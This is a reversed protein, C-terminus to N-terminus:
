RSVDAKADGLDAFAQQMGGYGAKRLSKQPIEIPVTRWRKPPLEILVDAKRRRVMVTGLLERLEQTRRSGSFVDRKLGPRQEFVCYREGFARSSPITGPMVANLQPYLEFANNQVPTGTILVARQARQVIPVIVQTRKAEDNKLYHSEDCIAAQVRFGEPANPVRGRKALLEYSIIHFDANPDYPETGTSFVQVSADHLWVGIETRWLFRLSAPTVVLVPWESRYHAIIGLAQVTKGLGM